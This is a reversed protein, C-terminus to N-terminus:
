GLRRRAIGAVGIIGALMMAWTGPEPVASVTISGTAGVSAPPSISDAHFALRLSGTGIAGPFPLEGTFLKVETPTSTQVFTAGGLSTGLGTLDSWDAGTCSILAKGCFQLTQLGESGTSLTAATPSTVSLGLSVDIVVNSLGSVDIGFSTGALSSVGTGSLAYSDFALVTAEAGTSVALAALAGVAFKSVVKLRPGM